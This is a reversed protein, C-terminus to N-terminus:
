KRAGKKNKVGAPRGRGRKIPAAPTAAVPANGVLSQMFTTLGGLDLVRTSNIEVVVGSVETTVKM